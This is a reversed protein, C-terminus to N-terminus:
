NVGSAVFPDNSVCTITDGDAVCNSPNENDDGACGALMACLAIMIIKKVM